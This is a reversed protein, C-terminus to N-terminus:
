KNEILRRLQEERIKMELRHIEAQQKEEQDLLRNKKRKELFGYIFTIVGGMFMAASMLGGSHAMVWQMVAMAVTCIYTWPDKLMQNIVM